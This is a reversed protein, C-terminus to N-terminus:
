QPLRQSVLLHHHRRHSLPREWRAMAIETKQLATQSAQNADMVALDIKERLRKSRMAFVGAASKDTALSAILENERYKGAVIL